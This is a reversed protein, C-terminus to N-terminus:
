YKKDSNKEGIYLTCIGGTIQQFHVNVYRNKQMIAQMEKGQIFTSVSAPLYSYARRNGAILWGATPIIWKSYFTYLQKLLFKEPITLELIM